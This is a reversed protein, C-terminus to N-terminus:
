QQRAATQRKEEELAKRLAREAFEKLPEGRLSSAAKAARHIGEDVALHKARPKM